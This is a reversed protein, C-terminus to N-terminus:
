HTGSPIMARYFGMRNTASLSQTYVIEGLVSANTVVAVWQVLNTSNQLVVTAGPEGVTQIQVNKSNGPQNTIITPMQLYLPQRTQYFPNFGKQAFLNWSTAGLHPRRFLSFSFGSSVGDHSAAPTGMGDGYPPPIQQAVWLTARLQDIQSGNGVSAYDVATQGTGEFWVGDRDDNFDEGTFGDHQNRHYQELAAFLNPHRALTGPIALISWTQTDLPLQGATQNRSDPNGGTTGALYCGRNTEWMSEVLNSALIAGSLWQTESTLQYMVTFAASIDINHETSKYTRNTPSATEAEHIGGLFGPYTAADVQMTRIFQGVNRAAALYNTDNFQQYLALLAIMAWANNGTDVDVNEVEYYRQPNELYFGPVPVTGVKGNVVWGTPVALDGPMYATRFRGDVYTRDHQAAQVFADGILRARRLSDTSGDALFAIAALANDYTYAVARLVLDFDVDPTSNFFDPQVPL